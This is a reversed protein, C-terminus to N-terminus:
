VLAPVAGTALVRSRGRPHLAITGLLAAAVERLQADGKTLLRVLPEIAASEALQAIALESQALVRLAGCASEVLSLEDSAIARALLAVARGEAIRRRHEHVCALAGLAAAAAAATAGGSAGNALLQVLPGIAGAEVLAHSGSPHLALGHSARAAARPLADVTSGAVESARNLCHVVSPVGGAACFAAAGEAGAAFGGVLAAIARCCAERLSPSPGAQMLLQALREPAGTEVLAQRAAEGVALNAVAKAAQEAVRESKGALLLSLSGAAGGSVLATRLEAELALIGCAGAAVRQVRPEAHRLLLLLTTTGGLRHVAARNQSNIVLKWLADTTAELVAADPSSLLSLLFEVDTSSSQTALAQARPDTSAHLVEFLSGAASAAAAAPRQQQAAMRSFLAMDAADSEM